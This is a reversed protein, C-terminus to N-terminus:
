EKDLRQREVLDAFKGNLNILEDYSGQELIKGDELYIIRDCNKITSLRHAIVIRTCKLNALADSVQKQTINDLASTAEDFILVSPKPAIARAIALRQRQGGSIGGSGESILTNMGMPMAEIDKDLGAIKAVEMAEDVSLWPATVTINDYISGSFLKSEQMVTGINKRLSNLDLTDIDKGDFYISGKSAKELGIMLRVLTSKGCGTKGTIAIYEGHKIDLNLKDIITPGNEDYKFSVNNIQINGNLKKVIKRGESTEPEADLIPKAMNLTPEISAWITSISILATFAGSINGYAANFAYYDSISINSNVAFYYIIIEGIMSVASSLLTIYIPKYAIASNQAFLNAWRSFARKEAGALKIKQIGNITAYKMGLESASLKMMKKNREKTIFNIAVSM